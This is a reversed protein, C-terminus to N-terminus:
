NTSKHQDRNIEEAPAAISKADIASVTYEYKCTLRRNTWLHTSLTFLQPWTFVQRDTTINCEFSIFGRTKHNFIEKQRRDNLM